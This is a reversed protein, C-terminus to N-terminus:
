IVHPVPLDSGHVIDLSSTIGWVAALPREELYKKEIKDEQLDKHSQWAVLTHTHPFISPAASPAIINSMVTLVGILHLLYLTHNREHPINTEVWQHAEHVLLEETGRTIFLLAWSSGPSVELVKHVSYAMYDTAPCAPRCACKCM